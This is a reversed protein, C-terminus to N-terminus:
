LASGAPRGLEFEFKLASWVQRFANGVLDVPEPISNLVGGISKHVVCGLIM